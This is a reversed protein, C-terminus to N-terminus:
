CSVRALILVPSPASRDRFNWLRLTRDSGITALLPKRICAELGLVEGSHFSPAGPVLPTVDNQM